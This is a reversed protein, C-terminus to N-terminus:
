TKKTDKYVSSNNNQELGAKIFLFDIVQSDKDTKFTEKIDKLLDKEYNEKYANNISNYDVSSQLLQVLDKADQKEVASYIDAAFSKAEADDKDQYKIEGEFDSPVDKFVLLGDKDSRDKFSAGKKIILEADVNPVPNKRSTKVTAKFFRIDTKKLYVIYTRNEHLGSKKFEEPIYITGSKLFYEDKSPAIDKCEFRMKEQELYEKKNDTGWNFFALDDFSFGYQEAVQSFLEGDKVKHEKILAAHKFESHHTPQKSNESATKLRSLAKDNSLDIKVVSYTNKRSAGSPSDEFGSLSYSGEELNKLKVSGGKSSVANVFSKDPFTVKTKIGPVAQLTDKDIYLFTLDAKNKHEPKNAALIKREEESDENLQSFDYAEISNLEDKWLISRYAFSVHEMDRFPENKKIFTKKTEPSIDTIIADELTVTYSNLEKGKPDAKYFRIIVKEFLGCSVLHGMLVPSTKDTEKCITLPGHIRQTFPYAEAHDDPVSISHNFGYGIIVHSKGYICGSGKIKGSSRSILEVTYPLPM